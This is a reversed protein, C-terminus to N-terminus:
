EEEEEKVPCEAAAYLAPGRHGEFYVREVGCQNEDTSDLICNKLHAFAVWEPSPM